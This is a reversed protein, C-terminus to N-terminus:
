VWLFHNEQLINFLNIFKYISLQKLAIMTSDWNFFSNILIKFYFDIENKSYYDSLMKRYFSRVDILTM